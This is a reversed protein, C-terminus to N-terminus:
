HQPLAALDRVVQSKLLVEAKAVRLYKSSSYKSRVAQQKSTQMNGLLRAMKQICPLLDQESYMSYHQLTPTWDGASYIKLALCLAAAALQSPVYELASYEPLTLEMLFKAMTHIEPTAEGARSYRRLFHLCLPNGLSYDLVRLMHREMAQIEQSSYTNDTIYVFDRVEPAYMEEYKSAILMATVGVLQLKSKEVDQHQLYRDIISITLYLTEQLLTFRLHVQILWDILIARMRANIQPQRQIYTPLVHYKRELERMYQYIEKVYEACLQPNERDIDDIDEIHGVEMEEMKEPSPEHSNPPPPLVTQEPKGLEPRLPQRVALPKKYPLTVKGGNREVLTNSISGLAARPRVPLFSKAVPLRSNEPVQVTRLAM